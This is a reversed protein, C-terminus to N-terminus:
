FRPLAEIIAKAEDGFVPVNGLADATAQKLRDLDAAADTAAKVVVPINAVIADVPNVPAADLTGNTRQKSVIVGATVAGAAGILGGFSTIADTLNLAQDSGIVKFFTLIPLIGAVAGSFLYFYQRIKTM